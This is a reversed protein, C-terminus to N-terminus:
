YPNFIHPPLSPPLVLTPYWASPAAATGAYTLALVFQGRKEAMQVEPGSLVGRVRRRTPDDGVDFARAYVAVGGHDPAASELLALVAETDWRGDDDARIPVAQAIQKAVDISVNVFRDERATGELPIRQARLIEAIRTASDGVHAPDLVVYYPVVQKTQGGYIRLAGPELAAPRTPRSRGPTLIPITAVDENRGVLERLEEEAEHIDRFLSGLHVPLYVRTFPMISERYGYM